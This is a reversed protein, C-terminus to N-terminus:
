FDLISDLDQDDSMSFISEKCVITKSVGPKDSQNLNLLFTNTGLSIKEKTPSNNAKVAINSDICIIKNISNTHQEICDEDINNDLFDVWKSSSNVTEKNLFKKEVCINDGHIFTAVEQYNNEVFTTCESSKNKNSENLFHEQKNSSPKVFKSNEYKRKNQDNKYTGSCEKIINGDGNFQEKDYFFKNESTKPIEKKGRCNISFPDEVDNEDTYHSWKSVKKSPIPEIDQSADTLDSDSTESDSIDSDAHKESQLKNLKQVHLRCEKGSGIGYHRKISQKEGCM